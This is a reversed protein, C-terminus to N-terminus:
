QITNEHVTNAIASTNYKHLAFLSLGTNEHIEQFFAVANQM